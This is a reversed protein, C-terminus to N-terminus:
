PMAGVIAYSSGGTYPAAATAIVWKFIQYTAYIVIGKKVDGSVKKSVNIKNSNNKGSLKGSSNNGSSNSNGKDNNSDDDWKWPGKKGIKKDIKERVWKPPIDKSGDHPTGDANRGLCPSALCPSPEITGDYEKM